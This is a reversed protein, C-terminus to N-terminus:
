PQRVRDLVAREYANLPEDAGEMQDLEAAVAAWRDREAAVAQLHRDLLRSAEAYGAVLAEAATARTTAAQARQHQWWGWGGLALALLLAAPLLARTM